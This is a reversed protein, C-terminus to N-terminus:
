CVLDGRGIKMAGLNGLLTLAILEPRFLENALRQVEKASVRDIEGVVEAVTFFRGFYMQQRALNSMRSSSSELGLVINSKMQDKARKLEADTVAQEKLRRLEKLTLQLVRETKDLSM